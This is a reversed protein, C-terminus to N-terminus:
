PSCKSESWLSGLLSLSSFTEMDDECVFGGFHSCKSCGHSGICPTNLNKHQHVPGGESRPALPWDIKLCSFPWHHSQNKLFIYSFKSTMDNPTSQNNPVKKILILKTRGKGFRIIGWLQPLVIPFPTSISTDLNVCSLFWKASFPFMEGGPSCTLSLAHPEFSISICM